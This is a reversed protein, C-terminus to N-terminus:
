RRATDFRKTDILQVASTIRHWGISRAASGKADELREGDTNDWYKPREAASWPRFLLAVATMQLM